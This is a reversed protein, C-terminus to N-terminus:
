SVYCVNFEFEGFINKCPTVEVVLRDDIMDGKTVKATTQYVWRYEVTAMETDRRYAESGYRTAEIEVADEFVVENYKNKQDTCRRLSYKADGLGWLNNM